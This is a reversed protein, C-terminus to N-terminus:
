PLITVAEDTKRDNNPATLSSAVNLHAAFKCTQSSTPPTGRTIVFEYDHSASQGLNVAVPGAPDFALSFTGTADTISIELTTGNTSQVGSSTSVPVHLTISTGSGITTGSLSLTGISVTGNVAASGYVNAYNTGYWSCDGDWNVYLPYEVTATTGASGM